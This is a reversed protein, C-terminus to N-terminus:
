SLEFGMIELNQIREPCLNRHPIGGLKIVRYNKSMNACWYGLSKYKKTSLSHTPAPVNCHGFEAKFVELEKLRQNFILDSKSGIRTACSWLFGINELQICDFCLNRHTTGKENTVRYAGRMNGCWRGLSKYNNTSSSPRSPVICHGFEAQFEELEKLRQNFILLRIKKRKKKEPPHAKCSWVFGMNELRRIRDSCLNRHPM